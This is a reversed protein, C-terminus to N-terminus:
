HSASAVAHRHFVGREGGHDILEVQSSLDERLVRQFTSHHHSPPQPSPTLQQIIRSKPFGPFDQSIRPVESIQPSKNSTKKKSKDMLYLRNRHIAHSKKMNKSSLPSLDWLIATFVISINFIIHNRNIESPRIQLCLRIQTTIHLKWGVMSKRKSTKSRCWNAWRHFILPQSIGGVFFPPKNMPFDDIM